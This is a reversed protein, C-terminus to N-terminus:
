PQRPPTSRLGSLYLLNGHGILLAGVFIVTAAVGLRGAAAFALDRKEALGLVPGAPMKVLSAAAVALVILGSWAAIRGWPILKLPRAGLQHAVIGDALSLLVMSLVLMATAGPLGYFRVLLPALAASALQAFVNGFYQRKVAGHALNHKRFITGSARFLVAVVQIIFIYSAVQVEDPGFKAGGWAIAMAPYAVVILVTSYIAWMDAFHALAARLTELAAESGSALQRSFNTYFVTSVPRLFLSSTRVFLQDGYRFAVYSVSPLYTLAANFGLLYLQSAGVYISTYGLERLIQWQSFGPVSLSWRHRYGSRHLQYIRGANGALQMVWVSVVLSWVGLLGHLFVVVASGALSGVVLWAEFKGYMSRANGLSQLLGSIVILPLAPILWALIEVAMRRDDSELGPLLARGLDHAFFALAAAVAAVILFATNIVVAYRHQAEAEGFRAVDRHYAPLALEAIQGAQFIRELVSSVSWAAFFAAAEKGVGFAWATASTSVLGAVAVGVNALLLGAVSRRHGADPSSM